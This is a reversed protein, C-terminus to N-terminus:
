WIKRNKKLKIKGVYLGFIECSPLLAMQSDGALSFSVKFLPVTLLSQIFHFYIMINSKELNKIANKVFFDTLWLKRDM